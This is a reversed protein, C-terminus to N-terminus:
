RVEFVGGAMVPDAPTYERVNRAKDELLISRLKWMGKPAFRPVSVKGTWPADAHEPDAACTFDARTRQGGETVPGEFWGTLTAAGSGVDQVAAGLLIEAGADSAVVAQSLTFAELTPPSGDCLPRAVAFGAQALLPSEATLHTTNGAKDKATLQQVSWVGCDASEPIMVNGEWLGTGANLACTFPVLAFGAPSRCAGSVATVGSLDDGVEARVVNWDETEIAEQAFTVGVVDPAISDSERSSVSFTGGPPATKPSGAQILASNNAVDTLYLWKVFWVGAEASPPINVVYTFSRGDQSDQLWLPLVASGGPSGIEGRVSKVGSLGDTAEITLTTASGGEVVAPDFRLHSLAPPTRDSPDAGAPSEDDARSKEPVAAGAAPPHSAGAVAESPRANQPAVAGPPEMSGAPHPNALPTGEEGPAAGAPTPFPKGEAGAGTASGTHGNGGPPTDGPSPRREKRSPDGADPEGPTGVQAPGGQAPDTGPGPSAASANVRSAEVARRGEVWRWVNVAGLLVCALALTAIALGYSWSRKAEDQTM